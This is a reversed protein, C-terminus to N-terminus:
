GGADCTFTPLDPGGCDATEEEARETRVRVPGALKGGCSEAVRGIFRIWCRAQMARGMLLFGLFHLLGGSRARSRIRFTLRGREDRGAGFTIRGAEPHGDLTRLTLSRADAHVVRVCCPLFGGIRIRLEDGVKLAAGEGDPHQFGATEPPALDVFHERVHKALGEPDCGAGEIVGLYDREFLPGTGAKAYAIKRLESGVSVGGM